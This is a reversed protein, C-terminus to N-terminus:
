RGGFRHVDFRMLCEVNARALNEPAETDLYSYGSLELGTIIAYVECLLNPVSVNVRWLFPRVQPLYRQIFTPLAGGGLGIILVRGRVGRGGGGRDSGRSCVIAPTLCLSGLMARHHTFCLHSPDPFLPPPVSSAKKSKKKRKKQFSKATLSLWLCYISIELAFLYASRHQFVFTVSFAVYFVKRLNRATCHDGVM